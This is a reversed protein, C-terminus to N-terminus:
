PIHVSTFIWGVKVAHRCLRAAIQIDSARRADGDILDDAISNLRDALILVNGATMTIPAEPKTRAPTSM